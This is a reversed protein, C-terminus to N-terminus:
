MLHPRVWYKALIRVYEFEWLDKWWSPHSEHFWNGGAQASLHPMTEESVTGWWPLLHSSRDKCHFHNHSKVLIQGCLANWKFSVHMRNWNVFPMIKTRLAETPGQLVNRVNTLLIDQHTIFLRNATIGFKHKICWSFHVNPVWPRHRFLLTIFPLRQRHPCGRLHCIEGNQGLHANHTCQQSRITRFRGFLPAVLELFETLSLNRFPM